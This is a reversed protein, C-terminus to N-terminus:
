QQLTITFTSGLGLMSEVKISGGMQEMFQKCIYLGLGSGPKFSDVKMFRDFIAEKYEEPIGIGDDRVWIDVKGSNDAPITVGLTITQGEASFLSANILLNEIVTALMKPDASVTCEAPASELKLENHRRNIVPMAQPWNSTQLLEGLKCPKCHASVTSNGMLTVLLIDNITKRLTDANSSIIDGFTKLEEAKFKAGPKALVQSFGVIAHLPTRIQHNMDAIFGERAKANLLLRHSEVARAEDEKQRDICVLVGQRRATGSRDIEVRMRLDYWHTEQNDIGCQLEMNYSGPNTQQMFKQLKDVYFNNTQLRNLLKYDEGKEQWTISGSTAMADHLIKQSTLVDKAQKRINESDRRTRYWSRKSFIAIFVIIALVALGIVVVLFYYLKPDTESLKTNYITVNRPIQSVKLGKDRLVDWNLQYSPTHRMPGIQEATEGALMRKGVKVADSIQVEFPTFFGGICSDNVLFDEPTMTLYADFNPGESCCRSTNDHKAQIYFFPSRHRYFAWMTSVYTSHGVTKNREPQKLSWASYCVVGRKAKNVQIYEEDVHHLDSYYKTTDLYALEQDFQAFSISDTWFIYPDLMSIYRHQQGGNRYVWPKDSGEPCLGTVLEAFDLNVKLNQHEEIVAMNRRDYGNKEIINYMRPLYESGNVGYAIAPISSVISDQNIQVLWRCYNGYALILDPRKGISDLAHVQKKVEEIKDKEYGTAITGFYCHVEANIGQRRFEDEVIPTWRRYVPDLDDTAWMVLVQKRPNEGGTCGTLFITLSFILLYGIYFVKRKLM